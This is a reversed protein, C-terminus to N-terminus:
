FIEKLYYAFKQEASSTEDISSTANVIEAFDKALNLKNCNNYNEILKIANVSFVDGDMYYNDFDYYTSIKNLDVDSVIANLEGSPVFNSYTNIVVNAYLDIMVFKVDSAVSFDNSNVLYANVTKIFKAYKVLYNSYVKYIDNAGILVPFYSSSTKINYENFMLQLSNKTASLSSYDASINEDKVKFNSDVFYSVLVSMTEDLDESTTEFSAFWTTNGSREEIAEVVSDFGRDFKNKSESTTVSLLDVEAVKNENHKKFFIFVTVGISAVILAIIATWKLIKKVKM